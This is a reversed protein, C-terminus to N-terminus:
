HPLRDQEPQLGSRSKESQGGARVGGSQFSAKASPVHALPWSTGIADGVAGM